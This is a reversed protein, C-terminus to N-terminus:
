KERNLQASRRPPERPERSAGGALRVIDAYARHAELLVQVYRSQSQYLTRQADMVDLFAFKGLEYGRSSVYLADRAAPLIEDKLRRAESAANEYNAYAQTLELRLRIQQDEFEASAKQANSAAESIAGKNSDFLPLPISVGVVAINDPLGNSVVHKMGASITLNPIRKAREVSVLANSRQMQAQATRSAPSTDLRQMWQPLPGASPVADLDDRLVRERVADSGIASVLAERATAVRSQASALEIQVAAAAMQAKTAEVPSVKGAVVRKRALEAVQAAIQASGQAVEKQRQAALLGYFADTVTARLLAASGDLSALAAARGYSAVDLRAQRKNGLEIIQSVLATSTRDRKDFGEQLLSVDPNPRAGAQMFAGFSADAGAIAGRMTPHNRAALSLSDELTLAPAADPIPQAAPPAVHFSAAGDASALPQAHACVAAWFLVPTFRILKFM